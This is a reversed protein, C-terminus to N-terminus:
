QCIADIIRPLGDVSKTRRDYRIACKSVEKPIARSLVVNTRGYSCTLWYSRASNREFHWILKEERKSKMVQDNVLSANEKPHGDYFTISTLEHHVNGYSVEWGNPVDVVKQEVVSSVPCAFDSGGFATLSFVGLFLTVVIGSGVQKDLMMYKFM